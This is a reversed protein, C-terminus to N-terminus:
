ARQRRVPTHDRLLWMHFFYEFVGALVTIVLIETLNLTWDAADAIIWLMAFVLVADAITAVINSTRPLILLDGLLYAVIGIGLAALLASMLTANSMLYILATIMVGHVVLKVLLKEM